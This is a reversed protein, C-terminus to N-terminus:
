YWAMGAFLASLWAFFYQLFIFFNNQYQSEECICEYVQQREDIAGYYNDFYEMSFGVPAQEEELQNIDGSLVRRRSSYTNCTEITYEFSETFSSHATFIEQGPGTIQKM